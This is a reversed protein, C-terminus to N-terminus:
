ECHHSSLSFLEILRRYSFVERTLPYLLFGLYDTHVYPLLDSLHYKNPHLPCEWGSFSSGRYLNHNLQLQSLQNIPMEMRRFGLESDAMVVRKLNRLM